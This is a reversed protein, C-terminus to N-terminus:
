RKIVRWYINHWAISLHTRGWLYTKGKWFNSNNKVYDLDLKYQRYASKVAALLTYLANGEVKKQGQEQVKM